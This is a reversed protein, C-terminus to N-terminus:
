STKEIEIMSLFGNFFASSGYAKSISISIDSAIKSRSYNWNSILKMKNYLSFISNSEFSYGNIGNRLIDSSAGVRSSLILSMGSAAAECVVTGWHEDRSPLILCMSARMKSACEFPSLFKDFIIGEGFCLNELPGSGSIRLNWKGGNKRYLKYAKLMLDVGKRKVLQGVFFFEKNREKLTKDSYYIKEYAGYYGCFIKERSMGLFRMFEFSANGPVFVGDYLKKLKLRFYIAGLYQRITGTYINDVLFYLKSGKNKKMWKSYKIWGPHAWGTHVIINFSSYSDKLDWIQNPNKLWKINLDPFLTDFDPFSVKAPTGLITLNSHFHKKLKELLLGCPPFGEWFFLVKMNKMYSSKDM